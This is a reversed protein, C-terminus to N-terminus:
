ESILINVNGDSIVSQDSPLNPDNQGCMVLWNTLVGSGSYSTMYQYGFIAVGQHSYEGFGFAFRGDLSGLIRGENDSGTYRAIACMTFRESQPVSKWRLETSKDGGIWSVSATAGAGSGSSWSIAGTSMVDRGNGRAEL